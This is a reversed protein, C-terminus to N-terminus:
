TVMRNFKKPMSNGIEFIMRLMMSFKDPKNLINLFQVFTEQCSQHIMLFISYDVDMVLLFLRNRQEKLQPQLNLMM